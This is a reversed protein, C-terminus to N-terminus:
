YKELKKEVEQFLSTMPNKSHGKLIRAALPLWVIKEEAYTKAFDDGQAEFDKFNDLFDALKIFVAEVPANNFREREAEKRKARNWEPYAAKTFRDTVWDVLNAVEAGFNEHIDSITTNTDEVTDHLLAAAQLIDSAGLDKLMKQVARPHVIYPANSYKRTQNVEAHKRAAYIDAKKVLNSM